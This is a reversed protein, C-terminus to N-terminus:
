ALWASVPVRREEVEDALAAYAQGLATALGLPDAEAEEALNLLASRAGAATGSSECAARAPLQPSYRGSRAPGVM